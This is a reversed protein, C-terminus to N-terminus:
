ITVGLVCVDDVQEEDGKWDYFKKQMFLQQQEMPMNCVEEILTLIRKRLFKKGPAGGFQDQFGDTFMYFRDGKEVAIEKMEFHKEALTYIGGLGIRNPAFTTLEGNRVMYLPLNAGAFLLKQQEPYYSIIGLDMGDYRHSDKQNLSEIIRKDMNELALAPTCEDPNAMVSSLLENGMTSMIAGPVGHGTCDAVGLTIGAPTQKFWYFDGSVIDKPLYLIFSESFIQKFNGVSPLMSEQLFKAYTISDTIERNKRKLEKFSKQKQKYMLLIIFVVATLLLLVLVALILVLRQQLVIGEVDQIEDQQAQIIVDKRETKLQEAKLQLEVSMLRTEWEKENIARGPHHLITVNSHIGKGALADKQIEFVVERYSNFAMNLLSTGFPFNETLIIYPYDEMKDNIDAIRLKADGNVYLLDVPQVQKVSKFYYFEMTRGRVAKRVTDSKFKNYLVKTVKGKGLMGVKFPEESKIDSYYVNNAVFRLFEARKNTNLSDKNGLLPMAFLMLAFLTKTKM